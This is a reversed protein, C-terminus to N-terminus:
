LRADPVHTLKESKIAELLATVAAAIWKVTIPPIGFYATGPSSTVIAMITAIVEM